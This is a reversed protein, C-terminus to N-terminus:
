ICEDPMELKLCSVGERSLADGAQQPGIVLLDVVNQKGSVFEEWPIIDNGRHQGQRYDDIYCVISVGASELIESAIEAAKGCGFVAVRVQSFESYGRKRVMDMIASFFQFSEKPHMRGVTSKYFTLGSAEDTELYYYTLLNMIFDAMAPKIHRIDDKYASHMVSNTVIEFSPFYDVNDHMSAWEHAAAILTSKSRTNSVIVDDPNHTRLLAVPSVSLIVRFDDGHVSSLVAYTKELFDLNEKYSINRFVFRGKYNKNIRPNVTSNSYISFETDYFAETLGLTIVIVKCKSIARFLATTDENLSQAVDYDAFCDDPYHLSLDKYNNTTSKLIHAKQVTDDPELALKISQYITATNYKNVIKGADDGAGYKSDKAIEPSYSKVDFGFDFLLKEIRRAFCSGIAFFSDKRSISFSPNTYMFCFEDKFRNVATMTASCEHNVTWKHFLSNGSNKM